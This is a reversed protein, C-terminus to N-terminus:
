HGRNWISTVAGGGWAATHKPVHAWIEPHNKQRTAGSTVCQSSSLISTQTAESCLGKYQRNWSSKGSSDTTDWSAVKRWAGYGTSFWWDSLLFSPMKFLSINPNHSHLTLLIPTAQLVCQDGLRPIQPPRTPSYCCLTPKPADQNYSPSGQLGRSQLSSITCVSLQQCWHNCFSHIVESGKEKSQIRDLGAGYCSVKAVRSCKM